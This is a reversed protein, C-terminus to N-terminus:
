STRWARRWIGDYESPDMELAAIYRSDGSPWGHQARIVAAIQRQHHQDHARQSAAWKDVHGVIDYRNQYEGTYNTPGGVYFDAGYVHVDAPQCFTLDYLVFTVQNPNPGKPRRVQRVNEAKTPPRKKTLIWDCGAYREPRDQVDITNQGNVAAVDMRRGYEAPWDVQANVRIVVDHGDIEESQDHPPAAPGVVAVTKGRIYAAWAADVAEQDDHHRPM